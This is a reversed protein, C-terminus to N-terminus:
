NAKPVPTVRLGTGQGAATVHIVDLDAADLGGDISASQYDNPAHIYITNSGAKLSLTTVSSHVLSWSSAYCPFQYYYAKTATDGQLVGNVV